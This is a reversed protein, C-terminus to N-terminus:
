INSSELNAIARMRKGSATPKIEQSANMETEGKQWSWGYVITRNCRLRKAREMNTLGNRKRKDVKQFTIHLM